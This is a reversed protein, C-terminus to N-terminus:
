YAYRNTEYLVGNNLKLVYIRGFIDISMNYLEGEFGGSGYVKETGVRELEFKSNYIRYSYETYKRASKIISRSYGPLGFRSFSGNYQERSENDTEKKDVVVVYHFGGTSLFMGVGLVPKEVLLEGEQNILTVKKDNENSSSSHAVLIDGITTINDGYIISLMDRNDRNFM